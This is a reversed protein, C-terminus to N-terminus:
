EVYLFENSAILVRCLSQWGALASQDNASPTFGNIYKISGTIEDATPPRGLIREFLQTVRQESTQDSVGLIDEALARTNDAVFQSNMMFLAQSAVTTSERRGNLVSPDAFDFAQFMEFLASRVVPLYISRRNTEYIVPNVNATSTVYSRNPTTLLTGHMEQDLEGAVVLIADRVAEADLRRRNMRWLFKNEPDVDNYDARFTTSMQYTASTMIRRHLQKLSWGSEAFEVALWDLLQPHTPLEGLLGFNDPSRVIGEGFHWLWVRNVMVRSTLPHDPQTLWRAFDLRGSRDNAELSAVEDGSQFITPYHRTVEYGLNLHSGRLHIRLNEPTSDSVAMTEPLTPLDAQLMALEDRLQKLEAQSDVPYLGEPPAPLAFPDQADAISQRFSAAATTEDRVIAAYANALEVYTQPLSEGFLSRWEADVGTFWMDAPLGQFAQQAPLLPSTDLLPGALRKRWNEIFVTQLPADDGKSSYRTLLEAPEGELPVLLLKDIHSFPGNREIRLTNKGEVLEVFGEIRWTQTDPNWSGTISTLAEPISISGNLSIRSPRSEAAAHRLELQYWGPQTTEIDYEVFNPLEGKNVIVGIGEGYGTTYIEVNGRTFQEAELLHVGMPKEAASALSNGRSRSDAKLEALREADQAALLYRDIQEFATNRVLDNQQSQFSAITQNHQDIKQQQQRHREIESPTGIPLEQWRAVVSFNDMTKTSKFIGALGYYDDQSFPDFKHDHCRACGFTLGLFAKGLTDVQEDIIDMQMKVPDDEALMKAGLSLFGTAVLRESALSVDTTATAPDSNLLDGALQEQVFRDYPIDANLASVVYDRYRFAHGYALNEDLGNSDAYRAIDLWYRGWRQGYNVSSLCRDILREYADPSDDDLFEAVEAPTPPLGVLDFFVRRILTRKDAPPAPQMGQEELRALVFHDIPHQIWSHNQVSPLRPKVPPQFAWYTKQDDTFSSARDGTDANDSPIVVVKEGPWFAGREIWDTIAAIEQPPLKEKPPMQLEVDGHSLARIMLSEGPKGPVIAPGRTGGQILDALHEVSFKSEPNDANHCDQCRNILVPRISKEFFNRDETSLKEVKEVPTTEPEGASVMQPGFPLAMVFLLVALRVTGAHTALPHSPIFPM